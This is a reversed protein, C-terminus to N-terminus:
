TRFSKNITIKDQIIIRFFRLTNGANEESSTYSIEFKEKDLSTNFIGNEETMDAYKPLNSMSMGAPTNPAM